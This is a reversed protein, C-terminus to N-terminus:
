KESEKFIAYAEEASITKPMGNADSIVVPEGLKMKRELMRRTSMSFGEKLREILIQKEKESM